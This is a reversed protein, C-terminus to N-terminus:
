RGSRHHRGSRHRASGTTRVNKDANGGRGQSLAPTLTQANEAALVGVQGVFARDILFYDDADVSGNFDFDGNRYGALKLAFGNDIQFYDDADIKGSLDADGNYTYKVLISNADVIEGDFVSYLTSGGGKDNLAVALGTLKNPEGAASSSIIGQGNWVGGNRGTKILAAVTALDASRNAATSQLILDNDKLDLGAAGALSLTATRIFHGGDAALTVKANDLLTLAALHQSTAFNVVANNSVTVSLGAADSAVNINGGTFTLGGSVAAASARGPVGTGIFNITDNGGGGNFFLGGAPIPNGNTFDITLTDDGLDGDIVLSTIQVSPIKIPAASNLGYRLSAGDSTVSVADNGPTGRLVLPGPQFEYAGIDVHAGVVRPFGAGRGDTTASAPVLLDDGADIAPSGPLLRHVPINGGNDGLPTLLPDIPVAATGIQNGNVGNSIGTLGIDVGILNNSGKVARFIDFVDDAVTDTGNFNGAVITNNLTTSAGSYQFIGGAVGFGNGNAGARNNTVTTNTLKLIAADNFIGGGRRDATNGSVTSNILTLLGYNYIGGGDSAANGSVTCNTLTLSGFNKIGGGSSYGSIVRNGSIVSDSIALVSFDGINQIGVSGGTITLRNMQVTADAVSFILVNPNLGIALVDAGPGDIELDDTIVPEGSILVITGKVNPDFQIQDTGAAVNADLIAQRLSGSGGDDTNSVTFVSLLRREEL